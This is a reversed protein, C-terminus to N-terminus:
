IPFLTRQAFELARAIGSPRAIPSTKRASRILRAVNEKEWRLAKGYDRYNREREVFRPGHFVRRGSPSRDQPLAAHLLEHFLIYRVFWEPVADQDLVPHVRVLHLYADYSGLRLSRRGRSPGERGWSLAPRPLVEFDSAFEEVFLVEALAGLHHRSGCVRTRLASRREVSAAALEADIWRDLERNSCRARRGVRLWQVVAGRVDAPAHEFFSSMHVALEGDSKVVRLVSNRARGFRVSIRLGLEKSLLEAWAREDFNAIPATQM